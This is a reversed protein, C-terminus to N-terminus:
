DYWCKKTTSHRPIFLSVLPIKLWHIKLQAPVLFGDPVEGMTPDVERAEDPLSDMRSASYLITWGNRLPQEVNQFEGDRKNPIEPSLLAQIPPYREDDFALELGKVSRGPRAKKFWGSAVGEFYRPLDRWESYKEDCLLDYYIADAPHVPKLTVLTTKPDYSNFVLMVARGDPDQDVLTYRPDNEKFPGDYPNVGSEAFKVFQGSLKPYGSEEDYGLVKCEKYAQVLREVALQRFHRNVGLLPVVGVPHERALEEVVITHLVTFAPEFFRHM